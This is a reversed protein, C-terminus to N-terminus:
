ADRTSFMSTSMSAGTKTDTFISGTGSSSYWASQNIICAEFFSYNGKLGRRQQIKNAM